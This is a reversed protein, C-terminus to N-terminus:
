SPKVEQDDLQLPPGSLGTRSLTFDVRIDVKAEAFKKPWGGPGIKAWEAKQTRHVQQGFGFVDAQTEQQLKRVVQQLRKELTRSVEQEILAINDPSRLDLPTNNEHMGAEMSIEVVIRPKKGSVDVEIQRDISDLDIAVNGKAKKVDSILIRNALEGRLWLVARTEEDSLYGVCKGKAFVATGALGMTGEEGRLEIVGMMPNIDGSSTAILYDRLTVDLGEDSLAMERIAEAPVKEFPYTNKLIDQADNGKAVLIYSQLRSLPDRSYQDLVSDIGSKALDEGILVIRRHGEYLFRSMRDEIKQYADHINRGTATQVIFKNSEGPGGQGGKSGTPTAIQLTVRYQDDKAKDIAAAMVLAIDNMEVRDWCGSLLLVSALLVTLLIRRTWM